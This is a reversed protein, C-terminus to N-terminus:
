TSCSVDPYLLGGCPAGDTEYIVRVSGGPAGFSTGTQQNDGVWFVNIGPPKGPDPDTDAEVTAFMGPSAGPKVMTGHGTAQESSTFKTTRFPLGGLFM